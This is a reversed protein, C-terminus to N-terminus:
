PNEVSLTWVAFDRFRLPGPSWPEALRSLDLAADRARPSVETSTSGHPTTIGDRSTRPLSRWLRETAEHRESSAILVFDETGGAPVTVYWCLQTGDTTRGPLRHTVEPLLPNGVPLDAGPFLSALHGTPSENFVYLYVEHDASVELTLTDGPRVGDGNSLPTASGGRHVLWRSRLEVTAAGAESRLWAFFGALLLLAVLLAFRWPAGARPRSRPTLALALEGASQFRDEPAPALAREILARFDEDVDPRRDILPVHRGELTAREQAARDREEVPPHGTVLFYGLAGLAHLDTRADLEAGSFQEPAMFHPTGGDARARAERAFGFDLLVIRGGRARMVNAPKLDAHVLGREHVAALAACLESLVARAETPSRPGDREIWQALTVGDVHELELELGDATEEVSHIRVIGPHDLAALARAEFVFRRRAAADLDNGPRIRKLAIRRDLARDRALLVESQAGRGLVGLLERGSDLEAQPVVGIRSLVRLARLKGSDARVDEWDVAEGAAIRAALEDLEDSM